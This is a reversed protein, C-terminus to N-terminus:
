LSVRRSPENMSPLSMSMESEMLPFSMSMSMDLDSTVCWIRVQEGPLDSDELAEITGGAGFFVDEGKLVCGKSPYEGSAYFYGEILGANKMTTYRAKCKKENSCPEIDLRRSMQSKASGSNLQTSLLLALCLNNKIPM